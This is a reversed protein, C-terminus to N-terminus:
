EVPSVLSMDDMCHRPPEPDEDAAITMRAEAGCIDCRYQIKVQRLEGEPPPKDLPRALGRLITFGVRIIAAAAVAAILVRLATDPV